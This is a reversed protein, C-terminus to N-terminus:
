RRCVLGAAHHAQGTPWRPGAMRDRVGAARQGSGGGWGPWPTAAWLIRALARMAEAPGTSLYVGHPPTHQATAVAEVDDEVWLWLNSGAESAEKRLRTAVTSLLVSHEVPRRRLFVGVHDLYEGADTTYRAILASPRKGTEMSTM